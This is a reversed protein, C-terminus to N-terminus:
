RGHENALQCRVKRGSEAVLPIVLRILSLILPKPKRREKDVWGCRGKQRRDFNARIINLTYCMTLVKECGVRLLSLSLSIWRPM